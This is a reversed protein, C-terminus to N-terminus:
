VLASLFKAACMQRKLKESFYKLHTSIASKKAKVEVIFDVERQDKHIEDLIVLTSEGKFVSDLINRKHDRNDWNLYSSVPYSEAIKRALTIKGVQRPGGIFVMKKTFDDTVPSELYRKM